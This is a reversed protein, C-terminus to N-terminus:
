EATTYTDFLSQVSLEETLNHVDVLEKTRIEVTKKDGPKLSFFNDSFKADTGKKAMWVWLAPKDTELTATFTQNDKTSLSWRINSRRLEMHKPRSFLLLNESVERDAVTLKLWLFVTRPDHDTLEKQLNLTTALTSTIPGFTKTLKGSNITKGDLDTLEWIITGECPAQLDSTVHIEATKKDADPLGSILLPSYFKKAMYHTAKWRGYYDISAWSVVPWCDNLQWYMTGMGRPMSRRWHEVGYKMAMGHLIQSLWAMNDFSNPMHFWDMMAQVIASNGIPSRQHREMVWSTLNRDQPLTFSEITKPEPMSQFGFESNFRHHCSQYWEFPQRGHWVQWLHADGAVPSNFDKRNIPNHPSGPWYEADPNLRKMVSPILDNFLKDYDAWSMATPTWTDAVLGQELENNGVWIAISAHHRMRRLNDEFEAKCNIMFEADFSPYTSCGFAFDQWICIGLEDCAEYFADDEYIGGGWARLMNIHVAATDALLAFYRERTMKSLIADAPIWNSGKVFFPVGNAKFYFSQGWQDNERVLQITRLGIRRTTKDLLNGQSDTLEVEVTYLPQSGMGNPWWLKPNELELEATLSTGQTKLQGQAVLAGQHHVRVTGGLKTGTQPTEVTTQVDLKVKKPAQSHDQRILVDTIRGTDFAVLSISRWIGATTLSLSWDWGFNCQEKRIWARGKIGVQWCGHWDPLPHEEQRKQVYKEASDFEIEITNNGAKLINKVDFEWVRFMNDAKGVLTGNIKITALTDLGQCNLMVQQRKLLNEPVNFERRYIWDAQSIWSVKIENDRYYPNEIKGANLLDGHVCGPVTARVNEFGSDGKKNLIWEGNLDFTEM